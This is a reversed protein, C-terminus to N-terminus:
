DATVDRTSSAAEWQEAIELWAAAMQLFISRERDTKATEAWGFHENAYDYFQEAAVYNSWAAAPRVMAAEQKPLNPPACCVDAGLTM